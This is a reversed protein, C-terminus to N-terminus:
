RLAALKTAVFAGLLQAGTYGIMDQSSLKGNLFFMFSVAPNFHGGSINGMILIAALLGGLVVYKDGGSKLIITLFIATGLFEALFKNTNNSM